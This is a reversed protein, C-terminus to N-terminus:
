RCRYATFRQRGDVSPPGEAIVTDAGMEAASNRALTILEDSIKEKGRAIFGIRARTQSSIGGLKKCSAVAEISPAVRITEAEPTLTVWACGLPSSAIWIAALWVITNSRM